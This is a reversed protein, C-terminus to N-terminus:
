EIPVSTLWEPHERVGEAEQIPWTARSADEYPGIKDFPIPEFGLQLAPSEPKLRFDGAQPNVFMPDAVVSHLDAGAMQWAEWGSVPEVEELKVDSIEAWGGKSNFAFHLALPTQRPDYEPDGEQPYYFVSECRFPELMTCVDSMDSRKLFSENGFAKWLGKNEAVLSVNVSGTANEHRLQFSVRYHKGPTLSFTPSKVRTYKVYQRQENYRGYLRLTNKGDATPHIESVMEPYTKHYWTWGKVITEVGNKALVDDPTRQSFDVNPIRDTRDALTSGFGQKGTKIPVKGGNWVVNRDLRNSELNVGNQRVYTSEPQDPYYFINREVENGQMVTGDQLFPNEPSYDMGRMKKWQPNEIRKNYDQVMKPQRNSLFVGQPNNNWTQLSFQASKGERGACNVFINNYIRNNRANHLHMGGAQAREVLNGYVDNGCGSEDLYIGWAFVFFKGHNNFGISDSCHNYRITHWGGNWGGTYTIGTDEMETNCHRMRNYELTHKVGGHFIACRPMDHILCHSIRNGCGYVIVGIGHKYFQGTHHIYCNEVANNGDIMKQVDGGGLNVGHSGINWIDCGRAVCGTGNILNLGAGSFYGMDHVRLKELVVNECRDVMVAGQESCSFELGRVVANKVERFLLIYNVTPVTVVDNETFEQPPWFYLKQNEVDQYWEGPADLEERMGFIAYRDEPRAAYAMKSALTLTRTAPDIEKIKVITNWWNYRPFISIEGDQPRSWTHFDKARVVVTDTREDPIDRYMPPRVGDVYAWGGSFPLEPNWNPYRAWIQRSGNLYIQHFKSTVDLPKLDAVFLANGNFTTKTWGKVVVGGVLKPCADKWAAITLPAEPTGSDLKGFSFTTRIAYIGDHLYINVPENPNEQRSARNKERAKDLTRVPAAETGPHDDNGQPSVHIDLALVATSCLCALVFAGLKKLM